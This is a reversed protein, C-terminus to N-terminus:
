LGSDRCKRCLNKVTYSPPSSNEILRYSTVFDWSNVIKQCEPCQFRSPNEFLQLLSNVNSINM